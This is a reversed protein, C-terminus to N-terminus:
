YKDFRDNLDGFCLCIDILLCRERADSSSSCRDLYPTSCRSASSCPRTRTDLQYILLPYGNGFQLFFHVLQLLIASCLGRLHGLLSGPWVFDLLLIATSPFAGFVHKTTRIPQAGRTRLSLSMHLQDFHLFAAFAPHHIVAALIALFLVPRFM